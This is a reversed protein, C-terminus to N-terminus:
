RLRLELGQVTGGEVSPALTFKVPEATLGLRALVAEDVELLYEGPRVGIAYFDGDSFTTLKRQTHTRGDVLILPLAGVGVLGTVTERVARGEIVGGPAIPIDIGRFHNPEPEVSMAGYTPIWLPSKLSASDVVLLVPEYPQVDWIHYRGASDSTASVTGLRLRVDPLLPEGPQWRGDNNLDLFIRGSVGSRELSPGAALDLGHQAQNYLV